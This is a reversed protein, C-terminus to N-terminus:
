NNRLKYENLSVVNTESNVVWELQNYKAFYECKKQHYTKDADTVWEPIDDEPYPKSALSPCDFETSNEGRRLIQNYLNQRSICESKWVKMITRGLHKDASLDSWKIKPESDGYNDKFFKQVTLIDYRFNVYAFLYTFIRRVVYVLVPTLWLVHQNDGAYLYIMLTLTLVLIFIYSFFKKSSSGLHRHLAGRAAPSFNTYNVNNYIRYRFYDVTYRYSFDHIRKQLTREFSKPFFLQYLHVPAIYPTENWRLVENDLHNRRLETRLNPYLSKSSALFYALFSVFILFIYDSVFDWVLTQLVQIKEYYYNGPLLFNVCLMIPYSAIIMLLANKIMKKIKAWSNELDNM